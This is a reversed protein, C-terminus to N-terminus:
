ITESDLWDAYKKSIATIPLALIAPNEYSHIGLIVKEIAKYNQEKAKILLVCEDSTELKDERPPWFYFSVIGPIINVCGAFRKKLIHQGIKEAESKNKCTVYIITYEAM